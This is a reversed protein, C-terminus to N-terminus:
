GGCDRSEFVAMCVSMFCFVDHGQSSLAEHCDPRQAYRALHGHSTFPHGGDSIWFGHCSRRVSITKETLTGGDQAHNKSKSATRRERVSSLLGVHEINM